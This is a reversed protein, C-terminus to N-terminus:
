ALNGVLNQNKTSIIKVKVFDGVNLPKNSSFFVCCDVEPADKKTRGVYFDKIKKEM